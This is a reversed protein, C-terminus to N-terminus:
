KFTRTAHGGWGGGAWIYFVGKSLLMLLPIVHLELSINKFYFNSSVPNNLFKIVCLLHILLIM